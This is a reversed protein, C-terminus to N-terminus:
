DAGANLDPGLAPAWERVRARLEGDREADLLRRPIAVSGPGSGRIFLYFENTVVVRSYDQWPHRVDIHACWARVGEPSLEIFSTELAHPDSAQMRRVRSRGDAQLLFVTGLATALGILLTPYWTTPTLVYAALAIVVFLGILMPAARSPPLSAQAIAACARRTEDPTPDVQFHTPATSIPEQM